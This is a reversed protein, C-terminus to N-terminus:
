TRWCGGSSGGSARRRSGRSGQWSRTADSSRRGCRTLTLTRTRTQTRTQNGTQTQTLDPTLQLALTLHRVLQRRIGGQMQWAERQARWEREDARKQKAAVQNPNPNPSPNSNPNPNPNPSPSPSPSPTPSPHPNLALTPCGGLHLLLRDLM